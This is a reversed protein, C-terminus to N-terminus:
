STLAGDDRHKFRAPEMWAQSTIFFERALVSNKKFRSAFSEANEESFPDSNSHASDTPTPSALIGKNLNGTRSLMRVLRAHPQNKVRPIYKSACSSQLFILYRITLVPYCLEADHTLLLQPSIPVARDKGLGAVPLVRGGDHALEVCDRQAADDGDVPLLEHRCSGSPTLGALGSDVAMRCAGYRAVYHTERGDQRTGYPRGSGAQVSDRWRRARQQSADMMAPGGSGGLERGEESDEGPERPCRNDDDPNRIWGMQRASEQKKSETQNNINKTCEVKTKGLGEERRERPLPVLISHQSYERCKVRSYSYEYERTPPPKTSALIQRAVTLERFLGLYAIQDVADSPMVRCAPMHCDSRLTHRNRDTVVQEDPPVTVFSQLWSLSCDAWEVTVTPWHALSRSKIATSSNSFCSASPQVRFLFRFVGPVASAEPDALTITMSSSLVYNPLVERWDSEMDPLGTRDEDRMAPCVTVRLRLPSMVTGGVNAGSSRDYADSERSFQSIKIKIVWKQLQRFHQPFIASITMVDALFKWILFDNGIAQKPFQPKTPGRVGCRPGTCWGDDGSMIELWPRGVWQGARGRGLDLKGWASRAGQKGHVGEESKTRRDGLESSNGAVGSEGSDGWKGRLESGGSYLFRNIGGVGSAAQHARPVGIISAREARKSSADAGNPPAEIRGNLRERVAEGRGGGGGGMVVNGGNRGCKENGGVASDWACMGAATCLCHAAYVGFEARRIARKGLVASRCPLTSMCVPPQDAQLRLPAPVVPLHHHPFSPQARWFSVASSQQKTHLPAVVARRPRQAPLTVPLPSQSVEDLQTNAIVPPTARPHLSAPLHFFYAPVQLSCIRLRRSASPPYSPPVYIYSDMRPGGTLRQCKAFSPALHCVM